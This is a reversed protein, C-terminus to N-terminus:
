IELCWIFWCRIWEHFSNRTQTLDSAWAGRREIRSYINENHFSKIFIPFFPDLLHSKYACPCCRISDFFPVFTRARHGFTKIWVSPSVVGSSNDKIEPKAPMWSEHAFPSLFKSGSRHNIHAGNEPPFTAKRHRYSNLQSTFSEDPFRELGFSWGNRSVADWGVRLRREDMSPLRTSSQLLFSNFIWSTM